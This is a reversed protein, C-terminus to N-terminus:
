SHGAVLVLWGARSRHRGRRRHTAEQPRHVTAVAPPAAPERCRRPGTRRDARAGVSGADDERASVGTPPALRGGGATKPCPQQRDQHDLGPQTLQGLFARQSDVRRLLRHQGRQVPDLRRDRGRACVGTLTSIGRLCGLRRTISTFESAAAMAAIEVDLRDRRATTTVVTEYCADFTSRTGAPWLAGARVQRLWRDHTSTWASKGDFVLGHRLLLKSLRHRARTLDGRCDERARVLDRAAEQEISPVTVATLDDMRLLRALLLADRGDTKVRDGPARRIKSPAAVQCRFGAATLDRALGFGTPGAEYTVALPGPLTSIWSLIEISDPRLRQEWVQGTETDLGAAAVSRAHVDLGVSTRESFVPAEGGRM